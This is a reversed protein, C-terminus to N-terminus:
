RALTAVVCGVVLAVTEAMEIGMGYTDGTLGGLRHAVSRQFLVPSAIAVTAITPGAYWTGAAGLFVAMVGVLALEGVLLGIALAVPGKTRQRTFAEATGASRAYPWVYVDVAPLVRAASWGALLPVAANAPALSGLAVVKLVVQLVAALVGMAGVRSDKMIELARERPKGSLLGDATDMLGDMHLGRTLAELMGVVLAAALLPPAIRHLATYAGWGTGGLAIGVAPYWGMSRWLDAPSAEDGARLPIATLFTIALAMPRGLSHSAHQAAMDYGRGGDLRRAV